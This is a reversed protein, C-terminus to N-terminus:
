CRAGYCHQNPDKGFGLEHALWPGLVVALAIGIAALAYGPIRM